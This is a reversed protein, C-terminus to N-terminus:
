ALSERWQRHLDAYQGGQAILGAPPGDEIIRGHDLVLVRDAIEVTSLRHAIVIATRDTLITRLAQQVLRESPIDLSSTAEDLIIVAPDALFARAFAVLQRQGASLRGGRRRVETHYTDPLAEIFYAAGIAKAAQEIDNISAGPRGLAINEAITGSFLFNEQTVMIIARRLDHDSLKRLDIGDISISGEDPDYFRAVLRAITSKGAGTAGVLAVTQGAPVLLNLSPLVPRHETYGFRIGKLDLTGQARCGPLPTPRAPETVSPREGLVAALKELAAAASQLSNYFQSLEQMPEFFRRLYLLFAALVGVAMQGHMARYGGYTLGVALTLNGILKIGPSLVAILRMATLNAQRYDDNVADFIESNRRERRFAQVARIGDLSEVFHVIVMAVAERTKRYARASASQFWRSLVLLFPFSLMTVAALPPDLWLLMGAVSVVSLGSLILVDLEGTVLETISDMDSTLRSVMRGSTYREHFGISLRQFHDFVRQRLDLLVTQGIRGCLLLFGRKGVYEVITVLVFLCAVTAMVTLDRPSETLPPIGQDIGIKVLYPGAMSAANQALLLLVAALLPRRHPRLLSGLLRRSALRLRVVAAAGPSEAESREADTQTAIGRWAALDARRETSM